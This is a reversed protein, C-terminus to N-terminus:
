PTSLYLVDNEVDNSKYYIVESDVTGHGLRIWGSSPYNRTESVDLRVFMRGADASHLLPRRLFSSVFGFHDNSITSTSLTNTATNNNEVLVLEERNTGKGLCVVYPYGATPFS